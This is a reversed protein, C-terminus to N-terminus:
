KSGSTAEIQAATHTRTTVQYLSFAATEISELAQGFAFAADPTQPRPEARMIAALAAVQKHLERARELHKNLDSM